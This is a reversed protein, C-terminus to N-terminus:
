PTAEQTADYLIDAVAYIEEQRYGRMVPLRYSFAQRYADLEDFNNSALLDSHGGYRWGFVDWRTVGNTQETKTVSVLVYRPTM